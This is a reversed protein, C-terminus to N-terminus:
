VHSRAPHGDCDEPQGLFELIGTPRYISPTGIAQGPKRDGKEIEVLMEFRTALKWPRTIYKAKLREFQQPLWSISPRRDAVIQRLQENTVRISSRRWM